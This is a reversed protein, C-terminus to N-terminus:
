LDAEKELAAREEGDGAIAYLVDPVKERVANLAAIMQDQGKRKQLRGVTLLVPREGWGLRQRAGLDRPAPRFYNTDVGPNLVCVREPPLGWEELLMRQTNYSNAVLFAAGRLVRRVLFAHERSCTATSVDEGHVYCFYPIGKTWKLALAM